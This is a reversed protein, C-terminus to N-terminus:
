DYSSYPRDDPQQSAEKPTHSTKTKVNDLYKIELLDFCKCTKNKGQEGSSYGEYRCATKCVIDTCTLALLLLAYRM